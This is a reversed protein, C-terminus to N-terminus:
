CVSCSPTDTFLFSPCLYIVLYARITRYIDANLVNKYVDFAKEVGERQKYMLFIDEIIISLHFRAYRPCM